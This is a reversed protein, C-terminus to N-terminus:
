EEEGNVDEHTPASKEARANREQARKERAMRNREAEPIMDPDNVDLPMGALHGIALVRGLISNLERQADMARRSEAREKNARRNSQVLRNCVDAARRLAREADRLCRRM